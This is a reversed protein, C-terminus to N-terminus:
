LAAKPLQGLVAYIERIYAGSRDNGITGGGMRNMTYTITTKRDLDMIVMSGGWGGWFCVRGDPIWDVTQRHPLAYGIGFRVHVQLVLDPGNSQERFILNVTEPSIIRKGDVEGNLTVISLIRNLARANSIGNAGGLEANRFAPTTVHEALVPTGKMARLPLSNPDSPFEVPPAEPKTLNAIRPYDKEEAGLRFDANLPTALEDRIFQGLSKGSVRRVLEGVLHGQSIIHYGSATGPKWWPAQGALRETAMPVDYMYPYPKEWAPVGAMHSLFHRVEVDEKGNAAFEPWYQSVRAYPDLLGRDVLLLAALNTVCKSSSWVPVITNETWPETRPEDTYGGWLDIVNTGAINVCISAGLESGSSIHREFLQRVSDFRPDCHGNVTM